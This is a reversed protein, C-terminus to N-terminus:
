QRCEPFTLVKFSSCSKYVSTLLTLPTQSVTELNLLVSKACILPEIVSNQQLILSFSTKSINYNLFKLDANTKMLCKTFKELRRFVEKSENEFKHVVIKSFFNTCSKFVINKVNRSLVLAMKLFRLKAYRFMFCCILCSM